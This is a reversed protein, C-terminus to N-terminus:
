GGEKAKIAAWVLARGNRYDAEIPWAKRMEATLAGPNAEWCKGAPGRAIERAMCELCGGQVFGPMGTRAHNDCGWCTM